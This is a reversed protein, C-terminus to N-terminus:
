LTSMELWIGMFPSWGSSGAWARWAWGESGHGQVELFDGIGLTSENRKKRL